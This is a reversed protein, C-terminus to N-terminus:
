LLDIAAHVGSPVRVAPRRAQLKRRTLAAPLRKRPAVQERFRGDLGGLPEASDKTGDRHGPGRNSAASDVRSRCFPPRRPSEPSERRAQAIRKARPTRPRIKKM